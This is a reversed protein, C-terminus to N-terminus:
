LGEIEEGAKLGTLIVQKNKNTAGTTVFRKTGDKMKVYKKEGETKILAKPIVIAKDAQYSTFKLKANMGPYLHEITEPKSDISFVVDFTSNPQPIYSISSITSDLKLDDNWKLSAKAKQGKKLDKLKNEAVAVRIQLQDPDVITLVTEKPMIRGGPVLKKSVALATTWRGLQNAGYYVIGDHPATIEMLALDNKLDQLKEKSKALTREQTELELKSIELEQKSKLASVEHSIQSIKMDRKKSEHERPISVELQRNTSVKMQELEWTQRDVSDQARKLIIEETEETMDDNEYMKKLQRLEEEAYALYNQYSKVREKVNRISIPKGTKEYYAFDEQKQERLLRSRELNLPHTKSKVDFDLKANKYRLETIPLSGEQDEITRTLKETELRLIIDGKKVRSGYEAVHEVTLESWTEPKIAIPTNTKSEVIGDLEVVAEFAEEKLKITKKKDTSTNKEAPKDQKAPPQKKGTNDQSFATAVLLCHYACTIISLCVLRNM